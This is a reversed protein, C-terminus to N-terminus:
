NKEYPKRLVRIRFSLLYYLGDWLVEVRKGCLGGIFVTTDAICAFLGYAACIRRRYAICMRWGYAM